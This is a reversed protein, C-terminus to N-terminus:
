KKLDLIVVRKKVSHHSTNMLLALVFVAVQQPETSTKYNTFYVDNRNVGFVIMKVCVRIVDFNTSGFMVVLHRHIM